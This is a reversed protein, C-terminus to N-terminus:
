VRTPNADEDDRRVYGLARGTDALNVSTAHVKVVAQRAGATPKDMEQLELNETGGFDTLVNAKM